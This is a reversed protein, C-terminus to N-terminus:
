FHGDKKLFVTSSHRSCIIFRSGIARSVLSDMTSFSMM